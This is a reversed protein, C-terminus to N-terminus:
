SYQYTIYLTFDGGGRTSQVLVYYDGIEPNTIRVQEYSDAGSSHYDYRNTTPESGKKIYLDLDAGKPGALRVSYLTTAPDRLHTTIRYSGGSAVTGDIVESPIHGAFTSTPVTTVLTPHPTVIGGGGNNGSMYGIIALAVFIIIVLFIIVAIGAGMGKAGPAPAEVGQQPHGSFPSPVTDPAAPHLPSASTAQQM